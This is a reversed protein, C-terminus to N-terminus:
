PLVFEHGTFASNCISDSSRLVVSRETLEDVLRTPAEARLVVDVREAHAPALGILVEVNLREHLVRFEPSRRIGIASEVDALHVVIDDIEGDM